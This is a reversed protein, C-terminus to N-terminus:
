SFNHKLYKRETSHQLPSITIFVSVLVGTLVVVRLGLGTFTTRMVPPKLLLSVSFAVKCEASIKKGLEGFVGQMRGSKGFM